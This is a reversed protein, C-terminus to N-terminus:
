DGSLRDLFDLVATEYGEPDVNWSEGHGAGPFGVVEAHRVADAFSRSVSIPYVTDDEGHLILVPMTFDDARNVHDLASWDIGFRFTTMARAWTVLFGPAKDETGMRDIRESVDLAPADLVVGSVVGEILGHSIFSAVVSGGTGFGFLVM